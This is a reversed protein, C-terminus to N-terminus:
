TEMNQARTVGEVARHRHGGIPEGCEPCRAKEMPMGCEGIAFPHGNACNYWHGSHTAIGGPGGVMARKIAEIEEKTVEAYFDRGLLKLSKDVAEALCRAGRFPLECLETAKGLLDKSTQRFKEVIKRDEDKATGLASLARAIRSYYLTAEVALKPLNTNNCGEIVNSCNPSFKAKMLRIIEFKDELVLGQIRLQLLCAGHEIREDVGQPAVTVFPQLNLKAFDNDLTVAKAEAYMTAQHLKSAPQNNKTIKKQFVEVHKQQKHANVYRKALASAVAYSIGELRLSQRSKEIDFTLQDFKGELERLDHQGSVIFRKTMDDIVAKNILRNYRQTAYQRIPVKCYPCENLGVHGDLTEMTFFHGCELAIIRSEDLDIESYLKCEILDPIADVKMGCQNSTKQCLGCNTGDHCNRECFHSCTGMKRGCRETCAIHKVVPKGYIQGTCSGCTGACLHGCSKPARCPITCCFGHQEVDQSCGVVIDHSCGPVKKTVPVNCLIKSLNLTQHCEIGNHMHGCALQVNDVKIMCKGCPVGCTSRQCPHGCPDHRRQCAEECRFAAHMAESHCKAGCSHGCDRRDTCMERCGGEPSCKAFDDPENVEIVKEPHRPCCLGLSTGVSDSARLMSTVRNWMDVTSYTETNGILYMGHKARSLLVNIRNTTKLFGVNRKKNSRVLSIIVVKAEEGQFNDITAVRLLDALARKELPKGGHDLPADVRETLPLQTTGDSNVADGGPMFGNKELAEADRDSIVIEFDNRMATRIKQLQGTYPTLVAIDSSKYIGQRVIHRVLAQVMTVEWSNSKSKSHRVELRQDDELHDHDLWFVNKRMGVVNPLDVTTTHDLLKEYITERILTSIEPRMRRQVNLQAVPVSPRRAEGISLREFQSKDLQHLKGRASEMSLDEFNSVSPRSQEHDGIQICHEITPLLASIMHPELIEGAEECILIKSAVHKLLSMRGALGTTTLGIVDAGQLIRRSSESHINDLKKQTVAADFVIEQFEGVKAEHVQQVWHEVLTLRDRHSLVQVDTKARRIIDEIPLLSTSAYAPGTTNNARTDITYWIDFPHRGVARFGEDDINNFQHYIAPYEERIHGKLGRWGTKHHLHRVDDLLDNANRKHGNMSHYAEWALAKESKTSPETKRLTRVIKTVGIGILHELFQDLAHNTHCVVLVPGLDAKEKVALLVKMIQLGLYSKGTGPPGQVLAFERTLVSLLAQCQGRDLLTRAEIRNILEDDDSPCTPNIVLDDCHEKTIAQLTYTFGGHRAYSPPPIDQYTKAGPLGNHAPPVVWQQFPLGGLGQMDQLNELIPVFTGPMMNSYELLVGQAKSVWAEMVMELTDKDETVLRATITALKGDDAIPEDNRNKAGYAELKLFVHQVQGRQVWIFSLLSGRALHESDELWTKQAAIAQQRIAHPPLFRMHVNLARDFVFGGIHAATYQYARIDGLHLRSSNIVTKDLTSAQILRALAGKLEGFIDHRYLRFHTDVHRQAADLLFHPQEPDTYPLFEQADSLIEDRTPFIVFDTIDLKDNNHRNNPIVLDRPYSSSLAPIVDDDDLTAYMILLTLPAFIKAATGLTKLLNELNDNFRARRERKLLERLALSMADLISELRESPATSPDGDTRAAIVLECLHQFFPIARTGNAGGIFNYISGVYTDIALGDLFSTHTVIRLFRETNKIFRECDGGRVRQSMIAAIHHRGKYNKDDSDLDRALQQQCERDGHELIKLAGKWLRKAVSSNAPESILLRKWANYSKRAERQEDTETAKAPADDRRGPRGGVHSYTCNARKCAGTRQFENCIRGNGTDGATAAGRGHGGGRRGRQGRGRGRDAM